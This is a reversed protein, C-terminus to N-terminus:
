REFGPFLLTLYFLDMFVFSIESKALLVHFELRWGGSKVLTQAFNLSVM